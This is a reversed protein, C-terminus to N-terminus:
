SDRYELIEVPLSRDQLMLRDPLVAIPRFHAAELLERKHLDPGAVFAEIHQIGLGPASGLLDDLLAPADACYNDHVVFDITAIHRRAPRHGPTLSGFGLVRNPADGALVRMVGERNCVDDHVMPFNSVCRQLTAYKGSSLARSCDLVATKIPQVAFCAFAALDGWQANRLTTRQGPAFFDREPADDPPTVCRMVGGNHWQFGSKLYVCHPSRTAGLYIARCGAKFALSATIDTLHRAIGLRRFRPHTLVNGITAVEPQVRAFCVSATGAPEEDVRGLVSCITLTDSYDGNMAELWNYDTRTWETRWLDILVRQQDNPLPCTWVETPMLRQDHLRFPGANVSPETM